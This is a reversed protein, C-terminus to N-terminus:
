GTPGGGSLLRRWDAFAERWRGWVAEQEALLREVDDAHRGATALKEDWARRRDDAPPPAHGAPPEGLVRAFAAEYRDLVALCDGISAEVAALAGRWGAGTATAM